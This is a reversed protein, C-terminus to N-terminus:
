ISIRSCAWSVRCATCKASTSFNLRRWRSGTHLMWWCYCRRSIGDHIWCFANSHSNSFVFLRFNSSFNALIALRVLDAVKAIDIMSNIDNACEIFTVRRLKGTVLSIPGSVPDAIQSLVFYRASKLAHFVNIHSFEARRKDGGSETSHLTQDFMEAVDDQWGSFCLFRYLETM